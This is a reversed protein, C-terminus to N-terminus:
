GGGCFGAVCLNSCCQQNGQPCAELNHRCPSAAEAPTPVLISTIVPWVLVAAVGMRKVATRRSLINMRAVTPVKNLLLGSKQLQGIAMWVVSKSVRSNHQKEMTRVIDAVSRKGDCLIWVDAAINNLCHAKNTETDYVLLEGSLQRVIAHKRKPVFHFAPEGM